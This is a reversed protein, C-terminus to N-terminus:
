RRAVVMTCSAQIAPLRQRAHSSRRNCSPENVIQADLGVARSREFDYLRM